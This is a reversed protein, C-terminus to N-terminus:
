PRTENGMDNGTVPEVALLAPRLPLISGAVGEGRVLHREVRGTPCDAMYHSVKIVYLSLEIIHPDLSVLEGSARSLPLASAQYRYLRRRLQGASCLAFVM